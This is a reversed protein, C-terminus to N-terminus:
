RRSSSNAVMPTLRYSNYVLLYELLFSTLSHTELFKISRALPRPPLQVSFLSLFNCKWVWEEALCVPMPVLQSVDWEPILFLSISSQQVKADGSHEEQLPWMGYHGRIDRPCPCHWPARGFNSQSTESASIEGLSVLSYFAM